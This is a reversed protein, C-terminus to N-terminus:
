AYSSWRKPKGDWLYASAYSAIRVANGSVRKIMAEGIVVADVDPVSKGQAWAIAEVDIGGIKAIKVSNKGVLALVKYWDVNTQDYGWSCVLIHGVQLSHGKAREEAKRAAQEVKDAACRQRWAFHEKVKAERAAAKGYSYHFDAKGAKGHYAVVCFKGAREYVYVVADSAKDKILVAGAPHYRYPLIIAM